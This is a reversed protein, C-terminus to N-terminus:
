QLFLNGKNFELLMDEWENLMLKITGWIDKWTLEFSCVLLLDM